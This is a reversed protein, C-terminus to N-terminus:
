RNCNIQGQNIRWRQRTAADKFAVEEREKPARVKEVAAKTRPAGDGKERIGDWIAVWWDRHKRLFTKTPTDVIQSTRGAIMASLWM